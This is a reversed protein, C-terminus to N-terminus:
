IFSNTQHSLTTIVPIKTPKMLLISLDRGELPNSLDKNKRLTQVIGVIKDFVGEQRFDHNFEVNLVM